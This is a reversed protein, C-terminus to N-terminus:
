RSEKLIPYPNVNLGDWYRKPDTVLWVAFHLHYNGPGANGTDGVYAITEGQRVARGAEVGDAYRQLHAYYFIVQQDSSFQYLTIGGKDSNFLRAIKGDAAALVSTGQPAMIDIANHVRGESRAATYTDLLQEVKVNAVPIILKLGAPLQAVSGSAQLEDSAALWAPIPPEMIPQGPIPSFLPAPLTIVPSPLANIAPPVNVSSPVSVATLPVSNGQRHQRWVFAGLLLVGGAGLLLMWWRWKRQKLNIM